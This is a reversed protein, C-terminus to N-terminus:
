IQKYLVPVDIYLDNNTLINNILIIECASTPFNEGSNIFSFGNGCKLEDINPILSYCTQPTLAISKKHSKSLNIRNRM